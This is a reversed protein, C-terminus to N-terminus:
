WGAWGAQGDRPLSGEKLLPVGQTDTKLTSFTLPTVLWDM